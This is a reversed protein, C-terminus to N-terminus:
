HQHHGFYGLKRPIQLSKFQDMRPTIHYIMVMVGSVMMLGDVILDSMQCSNCIGVLMCGARSVTARTRDWFARSHVVRLLEEYTAIELCIISTNPGRYNWGGENTGKCVM